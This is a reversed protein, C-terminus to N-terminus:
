SLAFSSMTSIHWTSTSPILKEAPSGNRYKLLIASSTFSHLCIPIYVFINVLIHLTLRGLGLGKKKQDM